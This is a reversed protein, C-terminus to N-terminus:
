KTLASMAGVSQFLELAAVRDHLARSDRDVQFQPIGPSTSELDPPPGERDLALARSRVVVPDIRTPQGRQLIRRPTPYVPREVLSGIPEEPQEDMDESRSETTAEYALNQWERYGRSGGSVYGPSKPVSDLALWMGTEEYDDLLLKKESINTILLYQSRGPSRVVTPVWREGRIVWLKERDTWKLREPLEWIEGPEIWRTKGARVIRMKEGYLRRRESLQIRMEDPFCMTGDALDLRVGTPVIFDM